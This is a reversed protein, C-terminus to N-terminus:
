PESVLLKVDSSHTLHETSISIRDDQVLFWFEKVQAADGNLLAGLLAPPRGLLDFSKRANDIHDSHEKIKAFHWERGASNWANNSDVLELHSVVEKYYKNAVALAKERQATLTRFSAAMMRESFTGVLVVEFLECVSLFTLISFVKSKGLHSINGIFTNSYDGNGRAKRLDECMGGVSREFEKLEKEFCALLQGKIRRVDGLLATRYSDDLVAEDIRPAMDALASIASEVEAHFEEYRARNLRDLDDTLSAICASISHLHRLTVLPSISNVPVSVPKLGAVGEIGKSGILTTTLMGDLEGGRLRMARSSSSNRPLCLRYLQESEFRAGCLDSTADVPLTPSIRLESFTRASM